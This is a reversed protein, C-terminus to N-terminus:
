APYLKMHGLRLCHRSLACQQSFYPANEREREREHGSKVRLCSGTVSSSLHLLFIVQLSARTM